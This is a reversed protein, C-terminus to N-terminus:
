INHSCLMHSLISIESKIINRTCKYMADRGTYSYLLKLTVGYGFDTAQQSKLLYFM